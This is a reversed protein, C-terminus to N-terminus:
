QSPSFTFNVCVALQYYKIFINQFDYYILKVEIKVEILTHYLIEFYKTSGKHNLLRCALDTM